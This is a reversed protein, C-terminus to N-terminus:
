KKRLPFQLKIKILNFKILIEKSDNKDIKEDSKTSIDNTESKKVKDSNKTEQKESLSESSTKDGKALIQDKENSNTQKKRRVNDKRLFKIGKSRVGKPM